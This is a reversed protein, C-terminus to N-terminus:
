VAVIWAAWDSHSVRELVGTEKLRDLEREAVDKMSFPVLRSQCFWPRAGPKIVLQTKINDMLRLEERQVRRCASEHNKRPGMPRYIECTSM